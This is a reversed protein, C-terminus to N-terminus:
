FHALIISWAAEYPVIKSRECPHHLKDLVYEDFIIIFLSKIASKAKAKKFPGISINVNRCLLSCSGEFELEAEM